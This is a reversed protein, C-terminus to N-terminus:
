PVAFVTRHVASHLGDDPHGAASRRSVVQLTFTQGPALGAVEVAASHGPGHDAIRGWALPAFAGLEVDEPRMFPLEGARITWTDTGPAAATWAILAGGPTPTVTPGADLRVSAARTLAFPGDIRGTGLGGATEEFVLHCDQTEAEAFSGPPVPVAFDGTPVPLHFGAVRGPVEAGALIEAASPAPAGRALVLGLLLGPTSADGAIALAGDADEALMPPVRLAPRFGDFPHDTVLGDGPRGHVARLWGFAARGIERLAAADYHTGDGVSALGATSIVTANPIAAAAEALRANAAIREAGNPHTEVLAVPLDTGLEARVQRLWEALRPAISGTMRAGSGDPHFANADAEGIAMILGQLLVPGAAALSALTEAGAAQRVAGMAFDWSAGGQRMEDIGTGGRTAKLVRLRPAADDRWAALAPDTLVAEVLGIEPGFSPTGAPIGHAGETWTKSATRPTAAAGLGRVQFAGGGASAAVSPATFRIWPHAQREAEALAPVAAAVDARDPDQAVPAWGDANSQGMVLWVAVAGEPWPPAPAPDPDPEPDPDPDPEIEAEPEERAAATWVLRAADRRPAGLLRWRTGDIEIVDGADLDPAERLRIEILMSEVALQAGAWDVLRDPARTLVRVPAGPGVGGPLRRAPRGILPDDFIDDLAFALPDM